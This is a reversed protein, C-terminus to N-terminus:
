SRRPPTKPNRQHHHKTPRQSMVCGNRMRLSGSKAIKPPHRIGSKEKLWSLFQTFADVQDDYRGYPFRQLEALFAGLWPRNEPLIVDGRKLKAIHKNLRVLKSDSPRPIIIPKHGKDELVSILATGLAADEILVADPKFKEILGETVEVLSNFVLKGRWIHELYHCKWDTRFVECVSFNSAESVQQALDWSMICSRASRPIEKFRPFWGVDIHEGDPPVPNQQYQAEFDGASNEQILLNVEEPTNSDPDLVDGAPRPWKFGGVKYSVAETAILPVVLKEFSGKRELHGSLDDEHLRQGVMVIAAEARNNIRSQIATDFTQNVKKRRAEYTSDEADIPDDIILVDAGQGTIGTEMSVALRAGGRDTQFHLVLNFDERLRTGPFVARYWDSVMIRRTQDALVRALSQSHSVVIFSKSPHHGLEWAVWCVSTIFSKLTRPPMNIILRRCDGTSVSILWNCLLEIHMGNRFPEGQHVYGFAKEVFSPFDTRLISFFGEMDEGPNKPTTM